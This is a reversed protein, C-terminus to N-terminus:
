NLVIDWCKGPIVPLYPGYRSASNRWGNLRKNRKEELEWDTYNYLENEVKNCMITINNM